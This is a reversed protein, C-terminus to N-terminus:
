VSPASARPSRADPSHARHVVVRAHDARARPSDDTIIELGENARRIAGDLVRDLSPRRATAQDLSASDGSGWM